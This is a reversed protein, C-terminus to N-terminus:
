RMKDICEYTPVGQKVIEQAGPALFKSLAVLMKISSIATATRPSEATLQV